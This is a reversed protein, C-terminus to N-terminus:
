QISLIFMGIIVGFVIGLTASHGESLDHADPILEDCVIYLMAGGAFALSLSLFFHVLYQRDSSRGYWWFGDAIRGTHYGIINHLQPNGGMKMTTAMAIGEPINHLAM